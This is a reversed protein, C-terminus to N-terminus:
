RGRAARDQAQDELQQHQQQESQGGDGGGALQAAQPPLGHAHREVGGHVVAQPPGPLLLIHDPLQQM